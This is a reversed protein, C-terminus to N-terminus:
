VYYYGKAFPQGYVNIPRIEENELMNYYASRIVLLFYIPIGLYFLSFVAVDSPFEGIATAFMLVVRIVGVVLSFKVYSPRNKYLGILLVVSSFLTFISVIFGFIILLIVDMFNINTTAPDPFDIIDYLISSETVNILGHIANTPDLDPSPAPAVALAVLVMLSIIISISNLIVGTFGIIKSGFEVTFCICCTDFLCRRHNHNNM